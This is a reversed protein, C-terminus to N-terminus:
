GVFRSARPHEALDLPQKHQIGCIGLLVGYKEFIAEILKDAKQVAEPARDHETDLDVWGQLLIRYTKV